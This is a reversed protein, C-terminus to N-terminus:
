LTANSLAVHLNHSADNGREAPRDIRDRADIVSAGSAAAADLGPLPTRVVKGAQTPFPFASRMIFGIM